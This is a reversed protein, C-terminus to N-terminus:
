TTVTKPQARLLENRRDECLQAFHWFVDCAAQLAQAPGPGKAIPFQVREHTNCDLYIYVMGDNKKEITLRPQEGMLTLREGDNHSM